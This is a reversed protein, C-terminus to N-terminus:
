QTYLRGGKMEYLSAPMQRSIFSPDCGTIISQGKAIQKLLYERRRADLESLVDDLLLLPKEGLVQEMLAAEALKFALVVSRQQGQSAYARADKGDLTIEIDDRHPGAATNGASIDAARMAFAKEMGSAHLIEGDHWISSRYYFDLEEGEGSIVRYDQKAFMLLKECFDKRAVSIEAAAEVIQGDYINLLERAGEVRYYDKLLGNKQRLLRMYKKLQDLYRPSLQCLALDMFRRRQEPSGKILMLHEPSFLVCCLFGALESARRENGRNRQATRGKSSVILRIQQERGKLMFRSELISFAEGSKILEADRRARYSKAGTLLYVSELLNTKGQGNQGYIVNVGSDPSFSM